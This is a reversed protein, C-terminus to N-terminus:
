APPPLPIHPYVPDMAPQQLGITGRVPEADGWSELSHLDPLILDCLETTEDPQSSFSVKFTVKSFADAFQAAKPLYYAPNTGRVFAVGVQGGRMREVAALLESTHAIGEFGALAQAPKITTGVAGSAQNIAAVALAVDLANDGSVGSLVLAPKSAALETALRQLAAADVGSDTAAQQVSGKGALANAISLESGPKCSIWEDANLGTLS